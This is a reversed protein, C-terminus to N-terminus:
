YMTSGLNKKVGVTKQEGPVNNPHIYKCPSSYPEIQQTNIFNSIVTKPIGLHCFVIGGFTSNGAVSQWLM